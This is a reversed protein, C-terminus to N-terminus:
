KATRSAPPVTTGSSGSVSGPAASWGSASAEFAHAASRVLASVAGKAAALAGDTGPKVPLPAWNQLRLQKYGQFLGCDILLRREGVELLYKSGTVTGAAGLFSLHM